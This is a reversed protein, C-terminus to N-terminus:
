APSSPARAVHWLRTSMPSPTGTPTPSSRPATSPTASCSPASPVTTRPSSPTAPTHGPAAMRRMGPRVPTDAGDRLDLRGAVALARMASTARDSPAGEAPSGDVFHDWDARGLVTTAHGFVPAGEADAIWGIHDSHLHSIAVIAIDDPAFGVEALAGLLRGGSLHPPPDALPGFGLDILTVPDSPILFCGVPVTWDGADDHYRDWAATPHQPSGVFDRDMDIHGDVLALLDLDGIRYRRTRFDPASM